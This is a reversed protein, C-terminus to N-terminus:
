SFKPPHWVAHIMSNTHFSQYYDAKDYQKSTVTSSGVVNSCSIIPTHCCQCVCFPSCADTDSHDDDNQNNEAHFQTETGCDDAGNVDACPIASHYIVLVTLITVLYKM